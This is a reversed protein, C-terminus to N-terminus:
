AFRIHRYRSKTSARYWFNSTQLDEAINKTMAAIFSVMYAIEFNKAFKLISRVTNLFQLDSPM